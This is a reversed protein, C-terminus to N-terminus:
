LPTREDRASQILRVAEDLTSSEEIVRECSYGLVDRERYWARMDEETFSGVKARGRHRRLTEEFSVDLYFLHNHRPHERFITAFVERYGKKRLIGELVVDFGSRLATLVNECIMQRVAASYTEGERVNFIFRYPDQQILATPRPSDLLRSAITTKGAGCPGRVVILRTDDETGM